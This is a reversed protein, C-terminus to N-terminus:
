VFLGMVVGLPAAIIGIARIVEIFGPHSLGHILSVINIIYGAIAAVWLAIIVLISLAKM